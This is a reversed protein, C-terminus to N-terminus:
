GPPTAAVGLGLMGGYTLRNICFLRLYLRRKPLFVVFM